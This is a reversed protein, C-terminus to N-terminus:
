VWSTPCALSAGPTRSVGHGRRLGRRGARLAEAGGPGAPTRDAAARDPAQHRVRASRARRGERTPGRRRGVGPSPVAAVGGSHQGGRLGAVREGGGPLQGAQGADRLVPARRGGLAAGAQSVGHRRHDVLRRRQFGDAARGVPMDGAAHARGVLERRGRLPAAVPPAFSCEAPGYARGDAGREQASAAVDARHHLRAARRASRFTGPGREPPGHVARFGEPRGDRNVGEGSSTRM